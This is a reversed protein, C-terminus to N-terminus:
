SFDHFELGSCRRSSSFELDFIGRRAESAGGPRSLTLLVCLRLNKEQGGKIGVSIGIFSNSIMTLFM